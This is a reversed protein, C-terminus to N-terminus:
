LVVIPVFVAKTLVKPVLIVVALAVPVLIPVVVAKTLVKPVLM